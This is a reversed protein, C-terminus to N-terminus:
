EPVVFQTLVVPSSQEWEDVTQLTACWTGPTMRDVVRERPAGPQVPTNNANFMPIAGEPPPCTGEHIFMRVVMGPSPPDTWTIRTLTTDPTPREVASVVDTPAVPASSRDCVRPGPVIATGGYRKVIGAIDDAELYVCYYQWKPLALVDTCRNPVTDVLNVNMAACAHTEHELGLSHGFEHVLIRVEAERDRTGDARHVCPGRRISSSSRVRNVFLRRSVGSCGRAREPALVVIQAKSRGTEVLKIRAGSRNWHGVAERVEDKSAADVTALTIANGKGRKFVAGGDSTWAVANAPALTLALSAVWCAALAALALRPGRSRAPRLLQM